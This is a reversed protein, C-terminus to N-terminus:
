RVTLFEDEAAYDFLNLPYGALLPYRDQWRGSDAESILSDCVAGVADAYTTAPSYGIAQGARSSVVFPRPVSWPTGGVAPPYSPDDIGVIEGPYDLRGAIAAAIEAVTPTDPDAVNLVHSGPADVAALIMAAINAAATTQFRSAGGYALPIIPRGDLVRKVVWWERPHQSHLGHIACPRLVTVPVASGELLRRELAVKRTSYTASGPDVTPHTEPIPDPLEPFGSQRAEDLTRGQDDRYVSASSVVVFRGVDGQVDILQSGHDQDYATTDVMVDAGTGIASAIAGPHDRNLVVTRLAKDALNRLVQRNGRHAITVHWGAALLAKVVALGIQGTGGLIFATREM